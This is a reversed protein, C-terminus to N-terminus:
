SKVPTSLGQTEHRHAVIFMGAMYQATKRTERGLNIQSPGLTLFCEVPPQVTGGPCQQSSNDNLGIMTSLIICVTM